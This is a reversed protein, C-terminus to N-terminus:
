EQRLKIITPNFKETPIEIAAIAASVNLLDSPTPM